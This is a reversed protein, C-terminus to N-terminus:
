GPRSRGACLGCRPLLASSSSPGRRPFLRTRHNRRIHAPAARRFFFPQHLAPLAGLRRVRRSFCGPECCAQPHEGRPLCLWLPRRLLSSLAPAGSLAAPYTLCFKRKDRVVLALGWSITGVIHRESGSVVSRLEALGLEGTAAACVGAMEALLGNDPFIEAHVGSHRASTAGVDGLPFQVFVVM